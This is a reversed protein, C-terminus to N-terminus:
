NRVLVKVERVLVDHANVIDVVICLKRQSGTSEQSARGKIHRRLIIGQADSVRAVNRGARYIFRPEVERTKVHQETIRGACLRTRSNLEKVLAVQHAVEVRQGEARM